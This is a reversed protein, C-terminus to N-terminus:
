AASHIINAKARDWIVCIYVGIKAPVITAPETSFQYKGNAFTFMVKGDSLVEITLKGSDHNLVVKHYSPQQEYMNPLLYGNNCLSSIVSCYVDDRIDPLHM